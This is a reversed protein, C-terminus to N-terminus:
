FFIARVVQGIMYLAVLAIVSYCIIDSRRQSDEGFFFEELKDM